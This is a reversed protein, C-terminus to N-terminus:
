GDPGEPHGGGTGNAKAPLPILLPVTAGSLAAGEEEGGDMRVPLPLEIGRIEIADGDPGSLELAARKRYEPECRDLMELWYQWSGQREGAERARALFLAARQARARTILASFASYRREWNRLTDETVGVLAAAHRTILGDRIGSAVQEALEPTYKTPRGM